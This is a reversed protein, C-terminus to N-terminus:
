RAPPHLSSCHPTSPEAAWGPAAAAAATSPDQECTTCCASAVAKGEGAAAPTIGPALHPPPLMCIRVCLVESLNVSCTTKCALCRPRMKKVCTSLYFLMWSGPSVQVDVASLTALYLMMLRQHTMPRRSNAVKIVGPKYLQLQHRQVYQM